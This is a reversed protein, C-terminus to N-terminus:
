CVEIPMDIGNQCLSIVLPVCSAMGGVPYIFVIVFM